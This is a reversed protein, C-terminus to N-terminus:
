YPAVRPQVVVPANSPQEPQVVVPPPPPPAAVTAPPEPSTNLTCGALLVATAGSIAAGFLARSSIGM